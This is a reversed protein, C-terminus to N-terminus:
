APPANDRQIKEALTEVLSPGNETGASVGATIAFKMAQELTMDVPEIDQRPVIVTFGGIQYSMPLYVAVDDNQALGKPLDTFSERTVFGLLRRGGWQVTVVRSFERQRSTGFLGLMDQVSGYLTKVLPVRKLQAELLFLLRRMFWTGLALGVVLILIISLLIGLGPFYSDGLIPTLLTAFASELFTFFWWLLAITIAIPLLAVLGRLFIRGIAPMM